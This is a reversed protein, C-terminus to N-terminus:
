ESAKFNYVPKIHDILDATPSIQGIIENADKYAMPSEDLTDSNVCTTFVGNMREKYEDLSLTEFAKKRSM